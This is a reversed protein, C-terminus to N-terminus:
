QENDAGLVDQMETLSEALLVQELSKYVPATSFLRQELTPLASDQYGRIRQNSPKEKERRRARHHSCLAGADGRFGRSSTSTTCRSTCKRRCAVAKTIEAWPDGYEQKRKADANM